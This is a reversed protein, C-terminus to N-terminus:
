DVISDWQSNALECVLSGYFAAKQEKIECSASRAHFKFSSSIELDPPIKNKLCTRKFM